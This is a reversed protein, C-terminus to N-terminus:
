LLLFPLNVKVSSCFQSNLDTKTSLLKYNRICILLWPYREMPPQSGSNRFGIPESLEKVWVVLTRNVGSFEIFIHMCHLSYSDNGSIYIEKTKLTCVYKKNYM